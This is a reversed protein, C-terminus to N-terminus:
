HHGFLLRNQNDASNAAPTINGTLGQEGHPVLFDVIKVTSYFGPPTSLQGHFGPRLISFLFSKLHNRAPALSLITAAPDPQHIKETLAIFAQREMTKTTYFPNRTALTAKQKLFAARRIKKAAQERCTFIFKLSHLKNQAILLDM